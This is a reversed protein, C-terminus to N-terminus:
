PRKLDDINTGGTLVEATPRGEGGRRKGGTASLCRSCIMVLAASSSELPVLM